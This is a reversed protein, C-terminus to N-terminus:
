SNSNEVQGSISLESFIIGLLQHIFKSAQVYDEIGRKLVYRMPMRLEIDYESITAINPSNRHTMKNRYNSIYAHNGKWGENKEYVYDPDEKESIYSYVEHAFANPHKGQSDNHFLQSYYVKEPNKNNKYKINYLQAMLDWLVSTRFLANETYYIAEKEELSPPAVMNFHEIDSRYEWEIAMSFSKKIKEDLDVLTDYTTKYMFFGNDNPTSLVAGMVFAGEGITICFLNPDYEVSSILKYLEVQEEQM